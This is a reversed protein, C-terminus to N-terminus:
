KKKEVAHGGFERRIGAIVKKGLDFKGEPTSLRVKRAEQFGPAFGKVSEVTKTLEEITVSGIKTSLDKFDQRAFADVMWDLLSSTVISAPQWVKAAKKYDLKKRELLEVGEALGQMFTYEIINHVSKVYHGMGSEGFYGYGEKPALTKCFPEIHKFESKPGGIMLAYGRKLGHIGGSVGADFLHVGSKECLKSQRQANEYYSNAGNIIIDDAKLLPLLKEIHDDTIQGAPLMLWIIKKGDLKDVVEQLSYAPIAGKKAIEDVKEKTRNHAVVSHKNKLLREVMSFGMRGLGIIALKM